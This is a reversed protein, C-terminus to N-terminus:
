KVGYISAKIYNMNGGGSNAFELGNCQQDKTFAGIAKGGWLNATSDAGRDNELKIVEM